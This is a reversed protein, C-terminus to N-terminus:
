KEGGSIEKRGVYIGALVVVAIILIALWWPTDEQEVVAEYQEEVDEKIEEKDPVIEEDKIEPEVNNTVDEPIVPNSNNNVNNDVVPPVYVEYKYSYSVNSLSIGDTGNATNVDSIGINAIDKYNVNLRFLVTDNVAVNDMSFVMFKIGNDVEKTHVEWGTDQIISFNNIKKTDYSIIGEYVNNSRTSDKVKIDVAISNETGNNTELVLTDANVNVVFSLLFVVFLTCIRKM